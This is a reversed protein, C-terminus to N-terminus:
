RSAVLPALKRWGIMSADLDGPQENLIQICVHNAGAAHHEAVRAMIREPEGWAVIDDVLRDSGGSAVDDDTYGLRKLNSVYNPANLYRDILPRAIARARDANSEVVVMLEPAVQKDPGVAERAVRTHEVPVFYPHTGSSRDRALRLSRPGLSALIRGELPVPIPQADLEDLYAILKALPKEYKLGSREV